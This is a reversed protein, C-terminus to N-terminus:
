AALSQKALNGGLPVPTFLQPPAPATAILAALRPVQAQINASHRRFAEISACMQIILLPDDDDLSRHVSYHRCGEEAHIQHALEALLGILEAHRGPKPQMMGVAVVPADSPLSTAPDPAAIHASQDAASTVADTTL